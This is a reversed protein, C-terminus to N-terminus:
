LFVIKFEKYSMPTISKIISAWLAKRSEKDMTTYIVEFDGSLIEGIRSMDPPEDVPIEQVKALERQLREYDERYSQLDILDGLYLDKLRSLQRKINDPATNKAVAKKKVEYKVVHEELEEHIHELLYDEIRKEWPAVKYTCTRKVWTESCRYRQYLRGYKRDKQAWGKLTHGCLPCFVLGSFLYIRGKEKTNTTAQFLRQVREFQEKSIIAPCYETNGRYEGIYLTNALMNNITHTGLNKNFNIQVQHMAERRSATAEFTDFLCRVIQAGEEDIGMLNNVRCLGVPYSGTLPRGSKVLTQHVFRIRDGTRDSEDQAISLRINLNLRGNTTSTDYDELIAKWNVGNQDLIDQIRYYERVSRFWRDLKIFLVYDTKGAEVDRLVLQLAKRRHVEKRATVGDDIYIGVVEMGFRKAFEELEIQQAELSYGHRAQEETSVRIYLVCRKAYWACDEPKGYFM